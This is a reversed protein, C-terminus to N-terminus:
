TTRSGKLPMQVEFTTLSRSFIVLARSSKTGAGCRFVNFFNSLENVLVTVTSDTFDAVHNPDTIPDALRDESLVQVHMANSRLEDMPEECEVLLLPAEVHTM